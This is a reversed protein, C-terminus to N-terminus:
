RVGRPIMTYRRVADPTAYATISQSSCCGRRPTKSSLPESSSRCTAEIDVAEPTWAEDSSSAGMDTDFDCTGDAPCATSAFSGTSTRKPSPDEQIIDVFGCHIIKELLVFHSTSDQIGSIGLLKALFRLEAYERTVLDKRRVRLHKKRIRAKRAFERRADDTPLEFRCTPCLNRMLLWPKLCEAHFLHGCPVRIAEDGEAFGMLCIHCDSQGTQIDRATLEVVPWEKLVAASTPLRPVEEEEVLAAYVLTTLREGMVRILGCVPDLVYCM